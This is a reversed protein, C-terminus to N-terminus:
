REQADACRTRTEIARSGERRPLQCSHHRPSRASQRRQLPYQTDPRESALARHGACKRPHGRNDIVTRPEAFTVEYTLSETLQTM